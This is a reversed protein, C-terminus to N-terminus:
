AARAAAASGGRSGNTKVQIGDTVLMDVADYFRQSGERYMVGASILDLAWAPASVIGASSGPLSHIGQPRQPDQQGGAGSPSSLYGAPFAAVFGDVQQMAKDLAQPLEQTLFARAEDYQGRALLKSYQTMLPQLIAGVIASQIFSQILAGVFATKVDDKLADRWDAQGRLAAMIGNSFASTVAPTLGERIARAAPSDGTFVDSLGQYIAKGLDFVAGVAQGVGPIGTAAGVGEGMLMALNKITTFKDGTGLSEVIKAAGNLALTLGQVTREADGGAQGILRIGDLVDALGSAVDNGSLERLATAFSRTELVAKPLIGNAELVQRNFASLGAMGRAALEQMAAALQLENIRTVLVRVSESTPEVGQNRLEIIRRQLTAITEPEPLDPLTVVATPTIGLSVPTVRRRLESLQLEIQAVVLQAEYRIEDTAATRVHERAESLRAELEAISLFDGTVTAFAGSKLEVAAAVLATAGATLERAEGVVEAIPEIALSVGRTYRSLEADLADVVAQAEIRAENTAAARVRKRAESLLEEIMAISRVGDLSVEAFANTAIPTPTAVEATPSIALKVKEGLRDLEAVQDQLERLRGILYTIRDDTPDLNFDTILENIARNVLRARDQASALQADLTNGFAESTRQAATGARNLDSFVDEITRAARATGGTGSSTGGTLNRNVAAWADAAEESQNRFDSVARNAAIWAEPDRASDLVLKLRTAEAILASMSSVTQPPPTPGLDSMRGTTYGPAPLNPLEAPTDGDEGPFLLRRIIYSYANMREWWPAHALDELARYLDRLAINASTMGPAMVTAFTAALDKFANNRMVESMALNAKTLNEAYEGAAGASDRLAEALENSKDSMNLIATIARTDFIEAAAQAGEANQALARQLDNLVDLLPRARGNTDRLEVGLTRLTEKAKDTPDLLASLTGRLATAGVDAPNMGKNDLEILIGLLDEFGIGAAHAVPGAVALGESLEKASNAALLDARALADAARGAETTDLGFQRLNALLRSTTDNLSEGTITALQMGPALLNMAESADIGAKVLESMATAMQARTFMQGAAGAADRIDELTRVLGIETLDNGDAVMVRLAHQLERIEPIGQRTLQTIAIGTAVFAGALGMTSVSLAGTAGGMIGLSGAAIRGAPGFQYMQSILAQQTGLQVQSALGLRSIRGEMGAVTAEATRAGASLQRVQQGFRQMGGDASRLAASYALMEQTLANLRAKSEETARGSSQWETRLRFVEQILQNTRQRVEATSGGLTVHARAVQPILTQLSKYERASLNTARATENLRTLLDRTATGYQTASIQGTRLEVNVKAFADAYQTVRSTQSAADQAAAAAARLSEAQKATAARQRESAATLKDQETQVRTTVTALAQYDKTSLGAQDGAWKLGKALRELRSAYEASDVQGVKYRANLLTFQDALKTVNRTADTVEKSVKDLGTNRSRDKNLAQDLVKGLQEVKALVEAQRSVDLDWTLKGASVTM